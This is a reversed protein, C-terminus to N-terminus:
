KRKQSDLLNKRSKLDRVLNFFFISYIGFIFISIASIIVIKWLLSLNFSPVVKICFFLAGGLIVLYVILSFVDIHACHPCIVKSAGYFKKCKSCLNVSIDNKDAVKTNCSSCVKDKLSLVAGCKNCKYELM